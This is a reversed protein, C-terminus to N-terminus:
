GLSTSRQFFRLQFQVFETSGGEISCMRFHRDAGVFVSPIAVPLCRMWKRTM